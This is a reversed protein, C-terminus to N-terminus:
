SKRVCTRVEARRADELEQSQRRLRLLPGCLDLGLVLLGLGHTGPAVVRLVDLLDPPGDPLADGAEPQSTRNKFEVLITGHSIVNCLVM